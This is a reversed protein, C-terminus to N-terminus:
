NLRTDRAKYVEGMGGAGICASLEYPGFRRGELLGTPRLADLVWAAPTELFADDEESSALLSDVERRLADNGACTEDLFAERLEPAQARARDFLDKIRPWDEPRFSM